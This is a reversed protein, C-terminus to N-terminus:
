RRPVRYEPPPPPLAALRRKFAGFAAEDRRLGRLQAPSLRALRAETERVREQTTPHTSFWAELRSPSRQQQRMLEEFFTLLGSPHIGADMMLRVAREDAQEEAERSYRALVLGGGVGLAAQEAGSPTRGM